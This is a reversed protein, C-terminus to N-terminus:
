SREAPNQVYLIQTAVEVDLTENISTAFRKAEEIVIRSTQRESDLSPRTDIIISSASLTWSQSGNHQVAISFVELHCDEQSFLRKSEDENLTRRWPGDPNLHCAGGDFKPLPADSNTTVNM